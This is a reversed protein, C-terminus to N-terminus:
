GKNGFSPLLTIVLRGGRGDVKDRIIEGNAELSSLYRQVSRAEVGLKRALLDITLKQGGIEEVRLGTAHRNLLRRLRGLAKDRDGVPRGKKTRVVPRYAQAWYPIKFHGTGNAYADGHLIKAIIAATDKRVDYDRDTAKLCVPIVIAAVTRCKEEPTSGYADTALLMTSQVLGAYADSREGPKAEALRRWNARAIKHKQQDGVFTKPMGDAGVFRGRDVHEWGRILPLGERSRATWSVPNRTGQQISVVALLHELAKESLVVLAELSGRLWSEPVGVHGGVCFLEGVHVGDIYLPQNNPLERKALFLVDIGTGTTSRKVACKDLIPGLTAAIAEYAATPDQDPRHGDLDIRCLYTGDPRLGTRVAIGVDGAFDRDSLHKRSTVLAKPNEPRTPVPDHGLRRLHHLRAAKDAALATSSFCTPPRSVYSSFM